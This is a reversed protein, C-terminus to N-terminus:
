ASAPGVGAVWAEYMSAYHGEAGVLEEHTGIEVIRGDDIVVVRDARRATSLRHAILVATRGDLLEDLAAEVALESRLDLNSTAEDLVLLRPRALFARALAILQREGASMSQGREGVPTDLGDALRGVLGGLGVQAVAASLDEDTADPRAFALNERLSGAFLFPEQPVVGIQARLSTLTVTRIDVGDILVRGSTPDYLRTVLKALTSKGSGTSGVFAVTEGAAIHLDVGHVVPQAPDYGFSVSEFVVDGTVPPLVAATESEMVSPERALLDRLKVLAARSQQYLTYLQVMQQLPLFFANIYLIFATLQGITLDGQRVMNGGVVLLLAQVVIGLGDTAPGYVGSLHATHDNADRYDRALERHRRVNRDGRHYATVVRAGALSESLHSLVRALGDRVRGYAKESGIRFWITLVALVPVVVALTILALRADYVFLVSVVVLMTLAQVALQAVGDQLFQQLTEIDSTMRTMVVGAKEGTYYDLSLRQLHAFVRNRLEAMVSAALRGTCATRARSALTGALVSLLYAIV